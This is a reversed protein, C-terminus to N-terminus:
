NWGEEMDGSTLQTFGPVTRNIFGTERVDKRASRRSGGAFGWGWLGNTDGYVGFGTEFGCHKNWSERGM